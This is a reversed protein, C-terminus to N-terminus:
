VARAAVAGRAPALVEQRAESLRALAFAGLAIELDRVVLDYFMGTTVLNAAIGVLWAMALYGGIRTYGALIMLGVAMEVVGVAHMFTSASVPLLREVLPSLYMSWDALRNFFKDLGALFPGVGLGIRLVRWVTEVKHNM